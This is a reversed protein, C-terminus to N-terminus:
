LFFLNQHFISHRKYFWLGVLYPGTKFGVQVNDRGSSKGANYLSYIGDIPSVSLHTIAMKLLNQYSLNMAIRSNNKNTAKISMNCTIYVHNFWQLSVVHNRRFGREITVGKM